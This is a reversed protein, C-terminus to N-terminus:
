ENVIIDTISKKYREILDIVVPDTSNTLPVAGWHKDLSKLFELKEDDSLM